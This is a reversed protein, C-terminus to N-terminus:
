WNGFCIIQKTLIMALVGKLENLWGDWGGKEM